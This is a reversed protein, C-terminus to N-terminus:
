ILLLFEPSLAAKYQGKHQIRLQNNCHHTLFTAGTSKSEAQVQRTHWPGQWRLPCQLIVCTVAVATTVGRM